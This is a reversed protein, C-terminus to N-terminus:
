ECEVSRPLIMYLESGPVKKYIFDEKIWPMPGAFCPLRGDIRKSHVENEVEQM